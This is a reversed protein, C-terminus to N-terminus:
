NKSIINFLDEELTLEPSEIIRGIETKGRYIIMTPVFEVQNAKADYSPSKKYTDLAHMKLQPFPFNIEELIKIFRPVEQHSDHCWSGFILNISINSLKQDTLQKLTEEKIKYSKYEPAYWGKCLDMQFAELNVQGYLIQKEIRSDEITKNQAQLSITLISLLILLSLKKMASMNLQPLFIACFFSLFM